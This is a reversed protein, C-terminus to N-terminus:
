IKVDKKSYKVDKDLLYCKMEKMDILLIQEWGMEPSHFYDDFMDEFKFRSPSDKYCRYYFGEDLNYHEVMLYRNDKNNIDDEHEFYEEKTIELDKESVREFVELYVKKILEWVQKARKGELVEIIKEKTKM